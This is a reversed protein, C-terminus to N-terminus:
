YSIIIDCREVSKPNLYHCNCSSSRAYTREINKSQKEDFLLESEDDLKDNFKTGITSEHSAYENFELYDTPVIKELWHRIRKMKYQRNFPPHPNNM